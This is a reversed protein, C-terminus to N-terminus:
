LDCSLRRAALTAMAKYKYATAPCCALALKRPHYHRAPLLDIASADRPQSLSLGRAGIFHSLYGLREKRAHAAEKLGISHFHISLSIPTKISLFFLFSASILPPHQVNGENSAHVHRLAGCSKRSSGPFQLSGKNKKKDTKSSISLLQLIKGCRISV